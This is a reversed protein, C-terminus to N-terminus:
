KQRKLFQSQKAYNQEFKTSNQAIFLSDGCGNPIPLSFFLCDKLKENLYYIKCDKM